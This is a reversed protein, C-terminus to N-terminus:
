GRFARAVGEAISIKPRVFGPVGVRRPSGGSQGSYAFTPSYGAETCMLTALETMSTGVGTCLSVPAATGSDVALLSEAVIDDVHVWDRVQRGDGWIVFPDDRRKARALFAGFPWDEGQDTGYGSFPRVVTVPVGARRTVAAMQEGALKTLGYDDLVTRDLAACSSFYLVRHQGTAVAWRFLAADLERNELHMAPASDIAARHPSRAAAHVVLDYRATDWRLWSRMDEAAVLPAPRVDTAAVTWGRARLEAAFHRGIFGAAGTVLARM